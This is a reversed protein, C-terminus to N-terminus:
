TLTTHHIAGSSTSVGQTVCCHPAEFIEKDTMDQRGLKAHGTCDASGVGRFVEKSEEGERVCVM